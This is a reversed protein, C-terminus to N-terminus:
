DFFRKRVKKEDHFFTKNTGSMCGICEPASNGENKEREILFNRIRNQVASESSSSSGNIRRFGFQTTTTPLEGTPSSLTLTQHSKFVAPGNMKAQNKERSNGGHLFSNVISNNLSPTKPPTTAFNSSSLKNENPINNSPTTTMKHLHSSNTIIPRSMIKDSCYM